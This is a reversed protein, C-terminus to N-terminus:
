FNEEKGIEAAIGPIKAEIALTCGEAFTSNDNVEIAYICIKGPIQYGLKQGLDFATAIDVGHSTPYYLSPNLDQLELKYLEATQGGAKISDIIVLRDYGSIYDLMSIGYESTEIVDLQPYKQKLYQAVRIGVADDSLILNGVGVLLTKTKLTTDSM